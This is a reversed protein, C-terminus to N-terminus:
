RSSREYIRRAAEQIAVSALTAAVAAKQIPERYKELLYDRYRM